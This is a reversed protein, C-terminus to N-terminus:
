IARASGRRDAVAEALGELAARVRADDVQAFAPEPVPAATSRQASGFPHRESLGCLWQLDTKLHEALLLLRAASVRNAGSEFKQIQQYSLGLMRGVQEQTLGLQVRRRKLRLGIQREIAAERELTM